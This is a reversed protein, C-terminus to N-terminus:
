GHARVTVSDLVSTKGFTSTVDDAGIMVRDERNIM